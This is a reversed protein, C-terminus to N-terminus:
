ANGEAVIERLVGVQEARSMAADMVALRRRMEVDGRKFGVASLRRALEIVDNIAYAVLAQVDERAYVAGCDPCVGAETTNPHVCVRGEM